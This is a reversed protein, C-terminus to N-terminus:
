IFESPTFLIAFFFYIEASLYIMIDKTTTDTSIKNKECKLIM